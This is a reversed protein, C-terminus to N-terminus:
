KQFLNILHSVNNRIDLHTAAYKYCNHSLSEWIRDNELLHRIKKAADHESHNCLIGLENDLIINDPDIGLSVVPVGHSFAQVFTNPFGESSSTNVLLRAKNLYNKVETLQLQGLYEVNNDQIQKLLLKAQKPDSFNAGIMVFRYNTDSLLGAIKCFLQPRKFDKMTAIFLIIDERILNYKPIKTSSYNIVSDKNFEEFVIKKQTKNQALILKSNKVGYQFMSDILTIKIKAFTSNLYDKNRRYKASAATSNCKEDHKISWVLIHRTILQFIALLGLSYSNDRFFVVNLNEKTFLRLLTLFYKIPKHRPYEVVKINDNDYEDTIKIGSKTLFIVKWGRNAFEAAYQYTMIEAGGAGYMPHKVTVFCITKLNSKFKKQNM